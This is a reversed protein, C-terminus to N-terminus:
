HICDSEPKDIEILNYCQSMKGRVKSSCVTVASIVLMNNLRWVWPIHWHGCLVLNMGARDM